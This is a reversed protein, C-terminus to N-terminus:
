SYTVPDYMYYEGWVVLETWYSVASDNYRDCRYVGRNESTTNFIVLAEDTPDITMVDKFDDLIEGGGPTCNGIMQPGTYWTVAATECVVCRADRSDQFDVSEQNHQIMDECVCPIRTASGETCSRQTCNLGESHSFVMM